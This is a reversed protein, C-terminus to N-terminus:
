GRLLTLVAGRGADPGVIRVAREAEDLATLGAVNRKERREKGGPLALLVTVAVSSGERAAVHLPTDGLPDPVDLAFAASQATSRLSAALRQQGPATLPSSRILHHIPFATPIEDAPLLAFLSSSSPPDQSIPLAVAPHSSLSPVRSSLPLCLYDTTGVRRFGLAHFFAILPQLLAHTEAPSRLPGDSSLAPAEDEEDDPVESLIAPLVYVFHCGKTEADALAVRVLPTPLGGRAGTVGADGQGDM